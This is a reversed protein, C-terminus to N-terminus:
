RDEECKKVDACNRLGALCVPRISVKNAIANSCVDRFAVGRRNPGGLLAGASDRCKLRLLNEEAAACSHVPDKDDPHPNPTPVAPDKCSLLYLLLLNLCHKRM